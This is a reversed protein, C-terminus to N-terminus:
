EQSEFSAIHESACSNIVGALELWEAEVGHLQLFIKM